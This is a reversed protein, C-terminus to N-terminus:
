MDEDNGPGGSAVQGLYGEFDFEGGFADSGLMSLAWDSSFPSNMDMSTEAPMPLFNIEEGELYMSSSSKHSLPDPRSSTSASRPQIASKSRDIPNAFGDTKPVSDDASMFSTYSNLMPGSIYTDTASWPMPPPPPAAGLGQSMRHGSGLPAPNFYAGYAQDFIDSVMTQSTASSVPSILGTSNSRLSGASMSLQM